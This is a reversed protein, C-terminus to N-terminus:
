LCSYKLMAPISNAVPPPPLCKSVHHVLMDKGTMLHGMMVDKLEISPGGSRGDPRWPVTVEACTTVFSTSFDWADVVCWTVDTADDAAHGQAGNKFSRTIFVIRTPTVHFRKLIYRSDNHGGRQVALHVTNSDVYEVLQAQCGPLLLPMNLTFTDWYVQAYTSALTNEVFSYAYIFEFCNSFPKCTMHTFRQPHGHALGCKHFAHGLRDLDVQMQVHIQHASWTDESADMAGELEPPLQWLNAPFDECQLKRIIERTQKCRLKLYDRMQFPSATTYLDEVCRKLTEEEIKAAEILRFPSLRFRKPPKRPKPRLIALVEDFMEDRDYDDDVSSHM